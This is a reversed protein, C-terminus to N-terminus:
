TCMGRDLVEEVEGCRNVIEAEVMVRLYFFTSSPLLLYFLYFYVGKVARM